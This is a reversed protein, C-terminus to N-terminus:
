GSGSQPPGFPEIRPNSFPGEVGSTGQVRAAVAEDVLVAYRRLAPDLEVVGFEPDLEEAKLDLKRRVHEESAEAPDLELTLMVKGM